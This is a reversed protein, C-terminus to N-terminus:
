NTHFLVDTFYLLTFSSLFRSIGTNGAQAKYSNEKLGVLLDLLERTCVQLARMNEVELPQTCLSLSYLLEGLAM